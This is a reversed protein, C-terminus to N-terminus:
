GPCPGHGPESEAAPVSFTPPRGKASGPLSRRRCQHM